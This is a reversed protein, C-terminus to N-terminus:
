QRLSQPVYKFVRGGKMVFVINRLALPNKLYDGEMAVIDAEMGPAITGIRDGFGLSQAALSTASILADMPSQGGQQIRFILGEENHGHAGAVADTGYVIKLGPVKTARMFETPPRVKSVAREMSSFADETYNGIGVFKDKNAVYNEDAMGITPDYYTGQRAMLQLVEDTMGRSGHEITTCHALAAMKVAATYAHVLTRMGQKTAEDCIADLQPQTFVPVSGERASTSAFIKIFDAGRAKRERVMARLVDDSPVVQGPLDYRLWQLSILLRPGPLVNRAWTDRLITDWATGPGPSQITTFGAGLTQYGNEAAYLVSEQPPEDQGTLRNDVFRDNRFHYTIHAHTDILGPTVTLGKLDYVLADKPVLGGIREVRGNAVIIVANRLMKGTGDLVTSTKLAIPHTSEQGWALPFRNAVQQATVPDGLILAFLGVSIGLQLKM